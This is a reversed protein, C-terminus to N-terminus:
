VVGALFLARVLLAPLPVVLAMRSLLFRPSRGELVRDPELDLIQLRHRGLELSSVRASPASLPM